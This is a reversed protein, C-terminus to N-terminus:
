RPRSPGLVAGVGTECASGRRTCVKAPQSYGPQTSTRPRVIESIRVIIGNRTTASIVIGIIRVIVGIRTSTSTSTGTGPHLREAAAATTTTATTATATTETRIAISCAERGFRGRACSCSILRRQNIGSQGGRRPIQIAEQVQVTQLDAATGGFPGRGM